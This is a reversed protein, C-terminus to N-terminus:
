MHKLLLLLPSVDNLISDQHRGERIQFSNEKRIIGQTAMSRPLINSVAALTTLIWIRPEHASYEKQLAQVEKSAHFGKVSARFFYM